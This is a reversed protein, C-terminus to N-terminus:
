KRLTDFKWKDLWKIQFDDGKFEIPLWVYRGDIANKPNWRDAMFIFADKKGPVPLVYTSQSDFTTESGKGVCPNGLEKWPGWITPAVASRAANPIWGTCGSGIFYYLGNHKFLTPAEMWRGVFARVYKGSHDLYDDTLEAIQITANYESAYIHYAKGDDDVFLNMDREMQGDVFFKGLINLSDVNGSFGNGPFYTNQVYDSVPLKHVPLVNMPWKGPNSRVSGKFVFPGTPKSAVAVGSRAYGYGKGKLEIHFWMVYKKTKANYIVKPRELVCGKQIDSTTDNVVPLAVGENKWNYLDKSSYCRVGVHALNGAEGEIKHEGYWYYTGKQYMIGGGHANIHIGKIDTWIEGPHFATQVKKQALTNLLLCQMIGFAIVFNKM